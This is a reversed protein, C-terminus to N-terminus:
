RSQITSDVLWAGMTFLGLAAVVNLVLFVFVKVGSM